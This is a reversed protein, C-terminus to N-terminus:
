FSLFLKPTELHGIQVGLVLLPHFILRCAFYHGAFPSSIKREIVLAAVYENM